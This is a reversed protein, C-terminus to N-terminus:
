EVLPEGRGTGLQPVLGRRYAEGTDIRNSTQSVVPLVAALGANVDQTGVQAHRVLRVLIPGAPLFAFSLDSKRDNAEDAIVKTKIGRYIRPAPTASVKVESSGGEVTAVERASM